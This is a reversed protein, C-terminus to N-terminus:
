MTLAASEPPMKDRNSLIAFLCDSKKWVFRSFDCKAPIDFEFANKAEKFEVNEGEKANLLEAITM